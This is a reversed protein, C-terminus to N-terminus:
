EDEEDEEDEDGEIIQDWDFNMRDLNNYFTVERNGYHDVSAIAGAVDRFFRWTQPHAGRDALPRDHKKIFPPWSPEDSGGAIGIVDNGADQPLSILSWHTGGFGADGWEEDAWGSGIMQWVYDEVLDSGYPDHAVPEFRDMVEVWDMYTKQSPQLRYLHEAVAEDVDAARAWEGARRLARAYAWGAEPDGEAWARELRRLGEDGPNPRFTLRRDLEPTPPCGAEAYPTVKLPKRDQALIVERQTQMAWAVQAPIMDPNREAFRWLPVTRGGPAPFEPAWSWHFLVRKKDPWAEAVWGQVDPRLMKVFGSITSDRAAFWCAVDKDESFSVFTYDPDAPVQRDPPVEHPSLLMGRYVARRPVGNRKRLKKAMSRIPKAFRTMLADAEQLRGLVAYLVWNVYLNYEEPSFRQGKKSV